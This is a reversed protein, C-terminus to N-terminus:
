SIVSTDGALGEPGIPYVLMTAQKTVLVVAHHTAPAGEAGPYHVAANTIALYLRSKDNLVDSLRLDRRIHVEGEVTVGGQLVCHVTQTLCLERMAAAYVPCTDCADRSLDCCPSVSMEWCNRGMDSARCGRCITGGRPHIATCVCSYSLSIGPPTQLDTSAM